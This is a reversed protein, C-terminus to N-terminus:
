VIPLLIDLLVFPMRFLWILNYNLDWCLFRVENYKNNHPPLTIGTMEEAQKRYFTMTGSDTNRGLYKFVDRQSNMNPLFWARVIDHAFQLSISSQKANPM